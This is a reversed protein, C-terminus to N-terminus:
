QKYIIGRASLDPRFRLFRPERFKGSEFREQFKIDMVQGVYAKGKKTLELRLEDTIGSCQGFEVLEGGVYQGFRIAGIMDSYKGKGQTYDMIVVSDEKVKKIKIWGKGYASFPDKLVTGEGGDEIIKKLLDFKAKHFIKVKHFNPDERFYNAYIEDLIERRTKQSWNRVDKGMYFLVDWLVYKLRGQEEQLQFAREPTSGMVSTVANVMRGLYTVEGDLVTGKLGPCLKMSLHPVNGTKEVFLNTVVSIRRGTFRNLHPTIHMLYRAGDLKEEEWFGSNDKMRLDKEAEDPTLRKSCGAPEIQMIEGM